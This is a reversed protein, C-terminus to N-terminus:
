EWVEGAISAVFYAREGWSRDIRQISEFYVQAERRTRYADDADHFWQWVSQQQCFIAEARTQTPYRYFVAYLRIM